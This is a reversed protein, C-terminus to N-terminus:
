YEGVVDYTPATTTVAEACNVVPNTASPYWQPGVEASQKPQLTQQEHLTAGKKWTIVHQVTDANYVKVRAYRNQATSDVTTDAAGTLNGAPGFPTAM